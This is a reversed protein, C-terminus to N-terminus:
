DIRVAVRRTGYAIYKYSYSTNQMFEQFARFEHKEWGHFNFYEDFALITGPGIRSELSGLVFKTASYLDADLHVFSVDEPHEKLFDQLTEEFWGKILTVNKPVAPLEGFTSYAGKPLAERFYWPEPLGEFSDFGYITKDPMTRAILSISGGSAVGFELILGSKTVKSLSYRLFDSNGTRVPVADPMNKAIYAVAEKQAEFELGVAPHLMDELLRKSVKRYAYMIARDFIRRLMTKEKCQLKTIALAAAFLQM